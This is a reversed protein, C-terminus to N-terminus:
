VEVRPGKFLTPIKYATTAGAGFTAALKDNKSYCM